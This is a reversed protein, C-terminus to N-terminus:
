LDIDPAGNWGAALALRALAPLSKSGTKKMILARHNEVTRRSIGLDAAINKNSRGALVLAMIERERPTLSAIHKAADERWAVLKSLDKQHEEILTDIRRLLAEERALAERLRVKTLEGEYRALSARHQRINTNSPSLDARGALRGTTVDGAKQQRFM